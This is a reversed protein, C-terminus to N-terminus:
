FPMWFQVPPASGAASYDVDLKAAKSSDADYAYWGVYHNNSSGDDDHFLLATTPSGLGAVEALASTVDFSNWGTGPATSDWATKATTRTRGSFDIYTTPATSSASAEFSLNTLLSSTSGVAYKYWQCTASSITIASGPLGSFFGFCSYVGGSKGVYLDGYTTYFGMGAIAYGDNGGASVQLNLTTGRADRRWPLRGKPDKWALQQRMTERQMFSEIAAAVAASTDVSFTERAFGLKDIKRQTEPDLTDQPLIWSGDNLRLQGGGNTIIRSGTEQIQMRHNNAVQCPLVRGQEDALVLDGQKPQYGRATMETKASPSEWAAYEFEVFGNRRTPTKTVEYFM